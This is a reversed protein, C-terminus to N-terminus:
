LHDTDDEAAPLDPDVPDAASPPTGADLAAALDPVQTRVDAAVHARFGDDSALVSAIQTAALRARRAPAFSAVRTLSAPVQDVPMRGLSDATLAVVRARVRDPLPRDLGPLAPDPALAEAGTM